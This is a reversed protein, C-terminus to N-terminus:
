NVCFKKSIIIDESEALMSPYIIFFLMSDAWM